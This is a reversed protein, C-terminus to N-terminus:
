LTGRWAGKLFGVFFVLLSVYGMINGPSPILDIGVFRMLILPIGLTLFYIIGSVLGCFLAWLFKKLSKRFPLLLLAIAVGLIVELLPFNFDGIFGL